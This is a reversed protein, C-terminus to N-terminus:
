AGGNWRYHIWKWGGTWFDCVQIWFSRWDQNQFLYPILLGEPLTRFLNSGEHLGFSVMYCHKSLTYHKRRGNKLRSTKGFTYVRPAAYQPEPDNSVMLGQYMVDGENLCPFTGSYGNQPLVTGWLNVYEKFHMVIGRQRAVIGGVYSFEWRSNRIALHPFALCLYQYVHDSLTESRETELLSQPEVAPMTGRGDPYKIRKRARALWWDDSKDKTQAQADLVAQSVLKELQEQTFNPRSTCVLVMVCVLLSFLIGVLGLVVFLAIGTANYQYNPISADEWLTGNMFLLLLVLVALQALFLVTMGLRTQVRRAANTKTLPKPSSRVPLDLSDPNSWYSSSMHTHRPAFFHFGPLLFVFVIELGHGKSLFHTHVINM